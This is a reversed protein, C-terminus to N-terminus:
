RESYLQWHILQKEIIQVMANLRIESWIHASAYLFIQMDSEDFKLNIDGLIFPNFSAQCPTELSHM